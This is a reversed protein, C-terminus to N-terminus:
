EGLYENILMWVAYENQPDIREQLYLLLERPIIISEGGETCIEKYSQVYEEYTKHKRIVAKGYYSVELFEAAGKYKNFEEETWMM